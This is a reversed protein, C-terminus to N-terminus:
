DRLQKKVVSVEDRLRSKTEKLLYDCETIGMGAGIGAGFTTGPIKGRKLLLMSAAGGGLVGVTFKLLLQEACRDKADGISSPRSGAPQPAVSDQSM